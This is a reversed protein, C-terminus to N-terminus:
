RYFFFMDEGEDFSEECDIADTIREWEEAAMRGEDETGGFSMNGCDEVIQSENPFWVTKYVVSVM